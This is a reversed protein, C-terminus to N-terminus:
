ARGTVLGSAGLHCRKFKLGSGCPCLANRSIEASPVRPVQAVAPPTTVAHLEWRDAALSVQAGHDPSAEESALLAASRLAAALQLLELPEPARNSGPRLRIVTPLESLGYASRVAEIAWRPGPEFTVLLSDGPSRLMREREARGRLELGRPEGASGRVVLERKWCRWRRTMLVELPQRSGPRTWPAARAFEACAELFAAVVSGTRFLEQSSLFAFALVARPVLAREPLPEASIGFSAGVAELAPEVRLREPGLRASLTALGSPVDPGVLPRTFGGEENVGCLLWQRREGVVAPGLHFLHFM